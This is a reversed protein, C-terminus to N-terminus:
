HSESKKLIGQVVSSVGVIIPSASSTGWFLYGHLNTGEGRAAFRWVLMDHGYGACDVAAGDNSFDLCSRAMIEAM